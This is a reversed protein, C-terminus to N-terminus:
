KNYESIAKKFAALHKSSGEKLNEFVQVVDAPMGIEAKELDEIDTIEIYEGVMLGSIESLMGQTILTDHLNQLEYLVFEGVSDEDIFSIDVNYKECLKQVADIHQQESLKISQYIEYTPYADGLQIYVDRAVKEEQYIFVLTDKQEQTLVINKNMPGRAVSITVIVFLMGIMILIRNKM